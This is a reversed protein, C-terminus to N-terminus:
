LLLMGYLHLIGNIVLWPKPRAERALNYGISLYRHTMKKRVGWLLIVKRACSVKGGYFFSKALAAFCGGRVFSTNWKDGVMLKPRAERALNYGISLSRRTMKKRVKLLLVVKRAYRLLRGRGGVV